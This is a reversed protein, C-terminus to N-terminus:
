NPPLSPIGHPRGGARVMQMTEGVQKMTRPEHGALGYYRALVEREQPPLRRLAVAVTDALDPSKDRSSFSKTFHVPVASRESDCLVDTRVEGGNTWAGSWQRMRAFRTMNRGRIRGNVLLTEVGADLRRRHVFNSIWSKLTSGAGIEYTRIAGM